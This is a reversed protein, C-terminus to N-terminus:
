YVHKRMSSYAINFYLVAHNQFNCLDQLVEVLRKYNKTNHEKVM